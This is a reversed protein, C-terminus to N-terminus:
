LQAARIGEACRCPPRTEHSRKLDCGCAALVQLCVGGVTHGSRSGYLVYVPM